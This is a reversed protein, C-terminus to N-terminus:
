YDSLSAKLPFFLTAVDTFGNTNNSSGVSRYIEKLEDPSNGLVYPNEVIDLM